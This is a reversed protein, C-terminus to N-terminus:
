VYGPVWAAQAAKRFWTCHRLRRRPFRPNLTSGPSQCQHALDPPSGCAVSATLPGAGPRRSPPSTAELGARRRERQAPALGGVEGPSLAPHAPRLPRVALACDGWGWAPAGDSVKAPRSRALVTYVADGGRRVALAAPCTGAATRQWSEAGLETPCTCPQAGGAALGCPGVQAPGGFCGGEVLEGWTSFPRALWTFVWCSPRQKRRECDGLTWRCFGGLLSGCPFVACGLVM